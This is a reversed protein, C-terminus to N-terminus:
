FVTKLFRKLGAQGAEDQKYVGSDCLVQYCTDAVAARLAAEAQEQTMSRGQKAAIEKVWAEHSSGEPIVGTGMLYPELGALETKLRGPLIFLGM